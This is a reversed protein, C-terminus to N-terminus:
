TSESMELESLSDPHLVIVLGTLKSIDDDITVKHVTSGAEKNEAIKIAARARKILLSYDM